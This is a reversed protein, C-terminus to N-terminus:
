FALRGRLGLVWVNSKTPNIAPDSIYQLDATLNLRKGVLLRYFVEAAYQADNGAGQNPNPKGWNLGVGLLDRNNRLRYGVGGSLSKELLSDGDDSWGGRLFPMWTEDVFRAFSFNMGWGSPKGAAEREDKHWVTVHYNDVYINDKWETWGLEVSTFYERDDFFTGFDDWVNNPDGNADQLSALLYVSKTLMAGFGLGLGGDNPLDITESGTSFAFNTFHLWPSILGYLDLFDTVDIVGAILAYRGDGFRQRWYLNQTRFGTDNFPPNFLGLYGVETIAFLPSPAPNAFGHRHEFKWVLSGANASGRGTLDWSGFIRAIGAGTSDRGGPVTDGANLYVATYDAGLGFGYKSRLEAKWADWDEGLQIGRGLLSQGRDSELQNQVANPGGFGGIREPEAAHAPAVSALLLVVSCLRAMKM